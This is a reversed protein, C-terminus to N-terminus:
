FTKRMFVTGTGGSSMIPLPWMWMSRGFVERINHMVGLDFQGNNDKEYYEINTVNFLIFYAQLAFLIFVGLFFVAGTVMGIVAHMIPIATETTLSPFGTLYYRVAALLFGGGCMLENYIIYLMYFKQNRFGVCNNVWPCHHDMKLVCRNCTRCHHTRPPKWGGCHKCKRVNNGVECDTQAHYKPDGPDTIMARIWTVYTMGAVINFYILAAWTLGPFLDLVPLFIVWNFIYYTYMYTLVIFVIACLGCPDWVFHCRQYAM